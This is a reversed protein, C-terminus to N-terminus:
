VIAKADPGSRQAEEPPYTALRTQVSLILAATAINTVLSTGGQSFFPLNTGTTPVIGSVVSLNLCAQVAIMFTFVMAVQMGQRTTARLAIAFGSATMVLYLSILTVIGLFGFEEAYIAAIYDNQAEPLYSLKQLSQGIGKGWMGGSGAAIRAQYPQHGTGLLDSEPDLYAHVRKVVYSSQWAVMGGVVALAIMPLLWYRIPIRTIFLVALLSLGLLGATGKDPELLVLVVSSLALAAGGLTRRWGLSRLSLWHLAFLPLCIKAFESPQFALPGVGLWRRAGHHVQGIGPIAVLVLLIVVGGMAWPSLHLMMEAGIAWVVVGLALGFVGYVLHRYIAGHTSVARGKDLVEAASTGFVMLVGLSFILTLSLLFLLRRPSLWRSILERDRSPFSASLM